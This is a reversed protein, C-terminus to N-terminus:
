LTLRDFVTELKPAFSFTLFKKFIGSLKLYFLPLFFFFFFISADDDDDDDHDENGGWEGGGGGGGVDASVFRPTTAVVGGRVQSLCQLPMKFALISSEFPQSRM